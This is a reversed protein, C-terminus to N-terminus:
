ELCNKGCVYYVTFCVTYSSIGLELKTINLRKKLLNLYFCFIEILLTCHTM